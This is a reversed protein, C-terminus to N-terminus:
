SDILMCDGYSYFRYRERVAEAYAELIFERGALAAVMMILTSEPLHFNTLLRDIANFRYPPYIFIGTSREGSVIVGDQWASELTRTATTGVATITKGEARARNLSEAVSEAIHYREEHMRHDRIDEVKVSEFTGAGVHLTVEQIEIGRQMLRQLVADTFHLGATPAAIAGYQQAFVTQYNELDVRRETEAERVRHIYPPLPAYGVAELIRILNESGSFALTCDGDAHKAVLEAGITDDCFLLREGPKIRASNKVKCRWQGPEEENLLLAEISAGTSRRGPLRAPIVRTNNIVLISGAPLLDPLEQFRRHEIRRESRRLVMMRSADRPFAPQAAILEDPLEYFYASRHHNGM